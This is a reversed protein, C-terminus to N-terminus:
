SGGEAVLWKHPIKLRVQGTVYARRRPPRQQKEAPAVACPAAPKPVLRARLKSASGLVGAYRM